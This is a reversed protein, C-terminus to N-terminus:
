STWNKFATIWEDEAKRMAAQQQPTKDGYGLLHLVGHCMVRLLEEQFTTQHQAANDKVRDISIYLEAELKEETEELPFTIIDTYYDHQLFDRNIQLLEDDSCFIYRLQLEKKSTASFQNAIFAKYVKAPKLRFRTQQYFFRVAM